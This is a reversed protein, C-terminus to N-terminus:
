FKGVFVTLWGFAYSETVLCLHSLLVALFFCFPCKVSMVGNMCMCVSVGGVSGGRKVSACMMWQWMGIYLCLCVNVRGYKDGGDLRATCDPLQWRDTPPPVSPPLTQTNTWLVNKQMPDLLRVCVCVCLYMKTQTNLCLGDKKHQRQSQRGRHLYRYFSM